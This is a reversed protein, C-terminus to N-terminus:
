RASNGVLEVADVRGVRVGAIRVDDGGALGSGDSVMASLTQTKGRLANGLTSWILATVLISVIAFVILKILPARISM